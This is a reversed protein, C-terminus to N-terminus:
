LFIIAYNNVYTVYYTVKRINFFCFFYKVHNKFVTNKFHEQENFLFLFLGTELQNAVLLCPKMFCCPSVEKRLVINLIASFGRGNLLL